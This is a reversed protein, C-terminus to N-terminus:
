LLHVKEKMFLLKRTYLSQERIYTRLSREGSAHTRVLGARRGQEFLLGLGKRLAALASNTDQYCQWGCECKIIRDLLSLKCLNDCAFYEQPTPEFELIVILTEFSNRL